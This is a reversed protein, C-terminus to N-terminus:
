HGATGHTYIFYGGSTDARLLVWGDNLAEGLRTILDDDHGGGIVMVEKKKMDILVGASGKTTIKGTASITRTM